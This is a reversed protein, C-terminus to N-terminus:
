LYIVICSFIIEMKSFDVYTKQLNNRNLLADPDTKKTKANSTAATTTTSPAAASPPSSTLAAEAGLKFM